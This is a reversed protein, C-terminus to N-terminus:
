RGASKCVLSTGLALNSSAVGQNESAILTIRQSDRRPTQICCRSADDAWCWSCDRFNRSIATLMATLIEGRRQAHAGASTEGTASPELAEVMLQSEHCGRRAVSSRRPGVQIRNDVLASWRFGGRIVLTRETLLVQPWVDGVRMQRLRRLSFSTRSPVVWLARRRLLTRRSWPRYLVETGLRFLAFRFFARFFWVRDCRCCRRRLGM